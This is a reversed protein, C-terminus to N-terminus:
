GAPYYTRWVEVTRFGMREYVRHGMESAQLYATHAGAAVGEAVVHATVAHGHGRRRHRPLTAINFVGVHGGHLAGLGVTCPTGDSRGVYANMGPRRLVEAAMAPGLDELRGGFGAAFLEQGLRVGAPDGPDIRTISPRDPVVVTAPERHLMLPEDEVETLDLRAALREVWDPAAPRSLVCRPRDLRALRDLWATASEQVARPGLVVVGNFRPVDLGSSYRVLDPSDLWVGDPIAQWWSRMSATLSRVAGETVRNGDGPGGAM